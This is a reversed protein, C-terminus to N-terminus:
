EQETLRIGYTRNRYSSSASVLLYFTKGNGLFTGPSTYASDLRNFIIVNSNSYLSGYIDATKTSDGQYSDNWSLAYTTNEATQIRYWQQPTASDPLVKDIYADGVSLIEIGEPDIAAAPVPKCRPGEGRPNFASVTYTMETGIPATQDIYSITSSTSNTLEHIMTEDGSSNRRYVRYGNVDALANWSLSIWSPGSVATCTPVVQPPLARANFYKLAFSGRSSTTSGTVLVFVNHDGPELVPLSSWLNTTPSNYTPYLVRGTDDFVTVVLGSATKSGDGNSGGSNVQISYVYGAGESKFSYWYSLQYSTLSGEMFENETLPVADPKFTGNDGGPTTGTYYGEPVSPEKPINACGALAFGMILAAIAVSTLRSCISNKRMKVRRITFYIQTLEGGRPMIRQEKNM